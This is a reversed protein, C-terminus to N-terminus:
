KGLKGPPEPQPNFGQAEGPKLRHSRLKDGPPEPQPVFGQAEGPKVKTLLTKDVPKVPDIQAQAISNVGIVAILTFLLPTM